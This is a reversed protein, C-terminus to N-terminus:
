YKGAAGNEPQGAAVRSADCSVHMEAIPSYCRGSPALAFSSTEPFGLSGLAGGPSRSLSYDLSGKRSPSSAAAHEFFTHITDIDKMFGHRAMDNDFTGWNFNQRRTSPSGFTTKKRKTQRLMKRICQSSVASAGSKLGEQPRVLKARGERKEHKEGYSQKDRKDNKEPKAQKEPKEPKELHELKKM